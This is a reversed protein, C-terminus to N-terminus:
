VSSTVPWLEDADHSLMPCARSACSWAARMAHGQQAQADARGLAQLPMGSQDAAAHPQAARWGAVVLCESNCIHARKALGMANVVHLVFAPAQRAIRRARLGQIVDLSHQPLRGGQGSLVVAVHGSLVVAVHRAGSRHLRSSCLACLTQAPAIRVGKQVLTHLLAALPLAHFPHASGIRQKAFQTCLVQWSFVPVRLQHTTHLRRLAAVTASALVSLQSRLVLACSPLTCASCSSAPAIKSCRACIARRAM